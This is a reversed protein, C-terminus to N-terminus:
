GPKTLPLPTLEGLNAPHRGVLKVSASEENLLTAVREGVEEFHPNVIHVEQVTSKHLGSAILQGLEADLPSVSIGYLVVRTAQTIARVVDRRIAVLEAKEEETRYPEEVIETPLYISGAGKASGHLYYTKLNPHVKKADNEVVSDWNTTVIAAEGSESLVTENLVKSFDGRTRLTGGREADLLGRSIADKLQALKKRFDDRHPAWEPVSPAYTGLQRGIYVLRAMAFNAANESHVDEYGNARMAALVPVWADVLAGAGVIMLTRGWEM